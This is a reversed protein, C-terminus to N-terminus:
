RSAETAVDPPREYVGGVGHKRFVIQWVHNVRARFSGATLLFYYRWMRYSRAGGYRDNLNPWARDLNKLWAHLTQDYYGGFNHWDEMVFLRDVAKGIQEISPIMGNPFIYKDIWPETALASGNGGISHLLFLGRDSLVRHAAEM